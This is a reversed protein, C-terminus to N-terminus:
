PYWSYDVAAAFKVNIKKVRKIMAAQGLGDMMSVQSVAAFIAHGWVLEWEAWMSWITASVEAIGCWGRLMEEEYM